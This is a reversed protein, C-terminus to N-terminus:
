HVGHMLFLFRQMRESPNAPKWHFVFRHLLYEALPWVLLGILFALLVNWWATPNLRVGRWLLFGILPLFVVLVVVPSILTFFELFDSKFLRIVPDPQSQANDAPM